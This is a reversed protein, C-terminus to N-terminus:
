DPHVPQCYSTALTEICRGHHTLAVQPWSFYDALCSPSDKLGNNDLKIFAGRQEGARPKQKKHSRYSM